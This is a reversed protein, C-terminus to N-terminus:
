VESVLERSRLIAECYEITKYADQFDCHPREGSRVCRLFYRDAPTFGRCVQENDTGAVQQVTYCTPTLPELMIHGTDNFISAKQYVRQRADPDSEIYASIGTGHIQYLERRAGVRVNSSFIGTGGNAFQALAHFATPKVDDSMRGLSPYFEVIESGMLFRMLDISHIMDGILWGLTEATSPRSSKYFSSHVTTIPGRKEVADKCFSVLPYFRRNVSVMCVIGAKTAAEVLPAAEACTMALPKEVLINRKQGIVDNVIRFYAEPSPREPRPYQAMLVYVADPDEEKLMEAYDVYCREEPIRFTEASHRLAAQRIDCISLEVDQFSSLGPLHFDNAAHGLGIVSVKLKDV